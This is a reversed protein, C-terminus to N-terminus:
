RQSSMRVSRICRLRRSLWVAIEPSGGRSPRARSRRRRSASCSGRCARLARAVEERGHAQLRPLEVGEGLRRLEELLEAHDAPDVAVVLDGGAPPVLIEAGVPLELEALEVELHREDLAVVHEVHHLRADDARELGGADLRRLPRERMEGVGVRHQAVAGVLGVEAEPHLDLVRGLDRAAGLEADELVRRADPVDDHRPRERAALLRPELLERLLPARLPERVQRLDRLEERLALECANPTSSPDVASKTASSSGTPRARGRAAGAAGRAALEVQDVRAEVDEVPDGVEREELVALLEAAPREHVM